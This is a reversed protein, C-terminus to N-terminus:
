KKKLAKSVDALSPMSPYGNQLFIEVIHSKQTGRTSIAHEPKMNVATYQVTEFIIHYVKFRCILWDINM